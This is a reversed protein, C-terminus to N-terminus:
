SAMPNSDRFRTGPRPPEEPPGAFCQIIGMWRTAIDGSIRLETDEIHRTQAAVQCFQTASGEILGDPSQPHWEWIAGSPATLRIQPLTDPVPLDRNAFSWGFTNITLVAINRIRDTDIREIGLMDYIAQGHAWSEMLRATISSRVSMDPGVWKVRMKPDAAAFRGTMAECFGFWESLLAQGSLNGRWEREFALLSLGQRTAKALSAVLDRFRKEDCLSADAARNWTHLHGIIDNVTWGKFQTVRNFAEDPLPALLAHLAASEDYFGEPQDFIDM